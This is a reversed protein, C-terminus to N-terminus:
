STLYVTMDSIGRNDWLYYPIATIKKGNENFGVIIKIGGFLDPRQELKFSALDVKESAIGINPNDINEICYVLPGRSVAFKGVLQKARPDPQHIQIAMHSIFEIEDNNSWERNLVGYKALYPTYGSACLPPEQSSHSNEIDNFNIPMGNLSLEYNECWSPIRLKLAFKIPKNRGLCKISVKGDYPYGSVLQLEIGGQIPIKTANGIFQHITISDADYSYIYKGLSAWTRSVNSPCCPTGYWSERRLDGASALPNRYLYSKGDFAIGSSAANYLQWEILDAYQAKGTLLGMEWNWFICGLAACTECYAYYPDMEYDYGFGEILPIAGIGGTVFMRKQVMHDWCQELTAQLAFNPRERCLMAAAAEFYGLRVAHGEPVTQQLLPKHQQNYKGTLFLYFSRVSMGRPPKFKVHEPIEFDRDEPHEKRYKHKAKNVQHLRFGTSLTNKLFHAGFFHIKGRQYLFHEALDLYKVDKTLRYLAILALEIEQHGPTKKPNQHIFDSYVLDATKRAVMLFKDSNMAVAHYVGAEILHGLTYLEHEIQLNQWRKTPFFYQNYTFLYGDDQQVESLISTFEDILTKLKSSPMNAYIRCAADLWKHADSDSYFWGWRFGEKKQALIRFNDINRTRELQEWQYYIAETANMQLRDNWFGEHIRVAHFDIEQM